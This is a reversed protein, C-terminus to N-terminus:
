FTELTGNDHLIAVRGFGPLRTSSKVVYYGPNQGEDPWTAIM